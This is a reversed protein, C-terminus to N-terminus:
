GGPRRPATQTESTQALNNYMIACPADARHLPWPSPRTSHRRDWGSGDDQRTRPWALGPRGAPHGSRPRRALSLAQDAYEVARQSTGAPRQGATTTDGCRTALGRSVHVGQVHVPAPPLEAVLELMPAYPTSWEPDDRSRLFNALEFLADVTASVDGAERLLDVAQELAQQAQDLHFTRFSPRATPRWPAVVCRTTTRSSRSPESWTPSDWRSADLRARTRRGAAPVARHRAPGRAALLDDGAALALDLATAYHYALVDALDEVRDGAEAEIWEAAAVHRAARSARPLQAYAVDRTLVHWFTYEAQGAM